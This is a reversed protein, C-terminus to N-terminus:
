ENDQTGNSKGGNSRSDSELESIRKRLRETLHAVLWDDGYRPIRMFEAIRELLERVVVSEREM